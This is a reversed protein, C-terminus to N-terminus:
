GAPVPLLTSDLTDGPRRVAGPDGSPAVAAQNPDPTNGSTSRALRPDMVVAASRWLKPFLLFTGRKPHCNSRGGRMGVIFTRASRGICGLRFWLCGAGGRGMRECAAYRRTRSRASRLSATLAALPRRRCDDDNPPRGRHDLPVTESRPATPNQDVVSPKPRSGPMVFFRRHTANTPM